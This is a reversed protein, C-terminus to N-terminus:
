SALRAQRDKRKQLEALVRAVLDGDARGKEKKPAGGLMPPLGALKSWLKNREQLRSLPLGTYKQFEKLTKTGGSEKQWRIWEKRAAEWRLHHLREPLHKHNFLDEPTWSLKGSM